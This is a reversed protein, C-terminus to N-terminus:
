NRCHRDLAALASVYRRTLQHVSLRSEVLRRAETTRTASPGEARVERLHTVADSVNPDAWRGISDYFYEGAEVPILEYNVLRATRDSCFDMNGSYGTVVVPVGLAMAEAITYGFGESRHLSLYCDSLGILALTDDRSWEDTLVIVRTDISAERLFARSARCGSYAMSVLHSWNRVKIVLKATPDDPFARTFARVCAVPNKRAATSHADFAFHVVFDREDLGLRERTLASRHDVTVAHGVVTVRTGSARTFANAIFTSATWVEEVLELAPQLRDPVVDTEWLFLGAVGRGNWLRPQFLYTEAVKDMPLHLVVRHGHPEGTTALDRSRATKGGPHLNYTCLHSAVPALASVSQTASLGIGSPHGVLGAVCVEGKAATRARVPADVGPRRTPGTARAERLIRLVDGEPGPDQGHDQDSPPGLPVFPHSPATRANEIRNALWSLQDSLLFSASDDVHRAWYVFQRLLEEYQEQGGGKPLNLVSAFAGQLRTLRFDACEYDGPDADWAVPENLLGLEASGLPLTLIAEGGAYQDLMRVFADIDLTQGAASGGNTSGHGRILARLADESGSRVRRRAVDGHEAAARSGLDCPEGVPVQYASGNM